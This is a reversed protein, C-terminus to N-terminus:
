KSRAIKTIPHGGKDREFERIKKRGMRRAMSPKQTGTINLVKKKIPLLDIKYFFRLAGRLVSSTYLSFV